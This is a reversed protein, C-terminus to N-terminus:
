AVESEQRVHSTDLGTALAMVNPQTFDAGALEGRMQGAAFVVCREALRILEPLESSQLVVAIGQELLMDILAYIEQKAGVDVGRTPEALLLVKCQEALSRALIVKQQNGGSLDSVFQKPSAYRISLKGGYETMLEREQRADILLGRRLREIVSITINHQVSLDPLIGAGKRDDPVYALGAGIADRPSRVALPKGHLLVEGGTIPRLGFLAEVLELGGSGMLGALGVVEGAALDFTVNRVATGSSLNRVSLVNEGPRRPPCKTYALERGVMATVVQRETLEGRPATLIHKGDRLVTIRDAVSFVESLKHSVYIVGVGRSALSRVLALLRGIEVESLAATPEDMVVVRADFALARAIEVLQQQAIPLDRVATRPNFDIELQTLVEGTRKYLATWDIRPGRTPERNIFINEAVSLHPLLNFEQFIVNIGARQASVPDPLVTPKGALELVGGSPQHVGALINILTSKGAGNEGVLAHVEGPRLDFDVHDLALVGPFRRSIGKMCLLPAIQETM